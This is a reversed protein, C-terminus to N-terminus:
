LMFENLKLVFEGCRAMWGAAFVSQSPDKTIIQGFFRIREALFRSCFLGAPVARVAAVTVPGCVGDVKLQLAKQIIKLTRAPGHHCSSDLVFELSLEELGFEDFKPEIIYVFKYIEAAETYTLDIVDEITCPVGRYDSLTKITIGMNTPGGKDNPHNVYGGERLILNAILTDISM